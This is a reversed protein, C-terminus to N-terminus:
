KKAPETFGRFKLLHNVDPRKGRFKTYQTMAEDEGIESLCYKRFRAAVDKNFLDGSERFAEIADCVLMEAWEYDYYGASYGGDFIHSFYTSHYRPAIEDILGLEDKLVKKEFDDVSAIDGTNNLTHWRLDLLAAALYETSAFGQNFTGVAKLKNLMADPISEGTKYHKAFSKLVSSDAVWVENIQSPCEVYDRPCVGATRVYKGKTFLNQLAHGFEHFMTQVEDYTLLSPTEKTPCTFNCVISVQAEEHKGDFDDLAEKFTTCWAGGGKTARPHWDFYVIGLSTGDSDLVQWVENSENYKPADKQEAFRVGYLRNAFVFLGKRVKSLEFYESLQSEDIDFKSKRLKEAWFWWDCAEITTTKDYKYAFRKMEDLEAKAKGLAPKWLSLLFTDVSEPTTAMNEEIVYHAHSKYGLLTAKEARLRVIDMLVNSNDHEGGNRGRKCYAEYIAKRLDHRESFQLFPMISANHLTFVWKGKQGLENAKEAAAAIVNQPLGALDSATDLVLRYSDNTEALLNNGFKNSLLSLEQNIERLRKKGKPDLSAGHRIFDRYYLEAVRKQSSDLGAEKRTDYIHQIRKFLEDNLYLDDSYTSLEPLLTEAMVNMTDTIDTEKLNFFISELRRLHQDMRDMPVITNEFTPENRNGTIISIANRGEKMADEFAPVYFRNEILGFPPLDHPTGFTKDNLLNHEDSCGTAALLTM